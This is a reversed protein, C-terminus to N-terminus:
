GAPQRTVLPAAPPVDLVRVGTGPRAGSVDDHALFWRVEDFDKWTTPNQQMPLALYHCCKATCYDCLNAGAPVEVERKENVFTVKPM